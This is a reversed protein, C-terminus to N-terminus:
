MCDFITGRLGDAGVRPFEKKLRFVFVRSIEGSFDELIKGVM